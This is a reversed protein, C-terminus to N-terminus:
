KKVHKYIDTDCTRLISLKIIYIYLLLLIKYQIILLEIFKIRTYVTNRFMYNINEM